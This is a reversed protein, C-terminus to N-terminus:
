VQMHGMLCTYYYYNDSRNEAANQILLVTDHVYVNRCNTYRLRLGDRDTTMTGSMVCETGVTGNSPTNNICHVNVLYKFFNMISLDMIKVYNCKIDNTINLINDFTQSVVNLQAQTRIGKTGM